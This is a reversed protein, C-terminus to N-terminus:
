RGDSKHPRDAKRKKLYDYFILGKKNAIQWIIYIDYRMKEIKDISRLLVRSLDIKKIYFIDIICFAIAQSLDKAIKGACLLAGDASLTSTAFVSPVVWVAIRLFHRM